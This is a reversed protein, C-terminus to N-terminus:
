RLAVVLLEGFGGCTPDEGGTFDLRITKGVVGLNIQTPPGNGGPLSAAKQAVVANSADIVSVTVGTFGFGSRVAPDSNAANSVITISQFRDSQQGTWTFTASGGGASFWSTANSGDIAKSAPYAASYTSSASV